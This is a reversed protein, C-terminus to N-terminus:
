RVMGGLVWEWQYSGYQQRQRHTKTQKKDQKSTAKLKIDWMDIFYYTEQCKKDLKNRKADHNKLGM